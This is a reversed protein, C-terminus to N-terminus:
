NSELTYLERVQIFKKEVIIVFNKNSLPAMTLNSDKTTLLESSIKSINHNIKNTLKDICSNYKYHYLYEKIEYNNSQMGIIINFDPLICIESIKYKNNISSVLIIEFDKISILTITGQGGVCLIDYSLMHIVRDSCHSTSVIFKTVKEKTEISYLNLYNDRSGALYKFNVQVVDYNYKNSIKLKYIFPNKNWEEIYNNINLKNIEANKISLDKGQIKEYIYIGSTSNVILEEPISVDDEYNLNKLKKIRDKEMEYIDYERYLNKDFIFSTLFTQSFLFSYIHERREIKQVLDINIINNDFYFAFIRLFRGSTIFYQTYIQQIYEIRDNEIEDENKGILDLNITDYIEISSVSGLGSIGVAIYNKDNYKIFGICKIEESLLIKEKIIKTKNELSNIKSLKLKKKIKSSKFTRRNKNNRIKLSNKFKRMKKGM